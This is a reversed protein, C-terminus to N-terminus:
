RKDNFIVGSQAVTAASSIRDGDIGMAVGNNGSLVVSAGNHLHQMISHRRYSHHHHPHSCSRGLGNSINNNICNRNVGGRGTFHTNSLHESARHYNNASRVSMNAISTDM